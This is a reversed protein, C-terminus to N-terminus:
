EAICPLSFGGTRYYASDTSVGTEYLSLYQAYVNPTNSSWYYGVQGRLNYASNLDRYGTAPLTLLKTSANPGYHLATNYNTVSNTWVGSRSVTNNDKVGTWEVITPVRWGAPCPNNATKAGGATRWSFFSVAVV